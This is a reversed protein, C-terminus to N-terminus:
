AVTGEGRTEAPLMPCPSPPGRLVLSSLAEPEVPADEACKARRSERLLWSCPQSRGQASAVPCPGLVLMPAYPGKELQSGPSVVTHGWGPCRARAM